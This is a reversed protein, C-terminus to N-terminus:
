DSCPRDEVVTILRRLTLSDFGPAVAIRRGNPLILELPQPNAVIAPTSDPLITVPLFDPSNSPSPRATTLTPSSTRAAYLHKRFSHISIDRRQCFEARILGSRRFDNLIASWRLDLIRARPM